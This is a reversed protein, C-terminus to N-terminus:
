CTGDYNLKLGPHAAIIASLLRVSSEYSKWNPMTATARPNQLTLTPILSLSGWTRLILTHLSSHHDPLTIPISHVLISNILASHSRLDSRTTFVAIYVAATHHHSSATNLHAPLFSAVHKHDPHSLSSISRSRIPM